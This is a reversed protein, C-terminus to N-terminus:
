AYLEYSVNVCGLCAHHYVDTSLLQSLIRELKLGFVLFWYFGSNMSLSCGFSEMVAFHLKDSRRYEKGSNRQELTCNM